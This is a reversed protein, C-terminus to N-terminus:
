MREGKAWDADALDEETLGEEKIYNLYGPVGGCDEPPTAGQADLM